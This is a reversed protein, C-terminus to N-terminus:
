VFDVVAQRVRRDLYIRRTGCSLFVLTARSSRSM